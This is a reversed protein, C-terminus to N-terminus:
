TRALCPHRLDLHLQLAYEAAAGHRPFEAVPPRIRQHRSAAASRLADRDGKGVLNTREVLERMPGTITRHFLFGILLTPVIMSLMALIVRSRQEYLYKFVNSPTRSAYVVGAVQDRVIVPMAIFVRMGTGRSMSYLSPQDHKSIRVRLM